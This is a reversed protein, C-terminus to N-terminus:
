PLVDLLDPNADGLDRVGELAAPPSVLQGEEVIGGGAAETVADEGFAEDADIEYTDDGPGGTLVDNGSGGDLVDPGAGGTLRDNGAGGRLTVSGGFASLPVYRQGARDISAVRPPKLRLRALDAVDIWFAGDADRLMVLMERSDQENIRLEVVVEEFGAAVAATAAAQAACLCAPASALGALVMAPILYIRRRLGTGLSAHRRTM